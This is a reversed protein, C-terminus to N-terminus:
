KTLFQKLDQLTAKECPLGECNKDHYGLEDATCYIKNIREDLHKIIEEKVEQEKLSLLTKIARDLWTYREKANSFKQGSFKVVLGMTKDEDWNQTNIERM